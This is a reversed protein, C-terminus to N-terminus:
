SEEYFDAESKKSGKRWSSKKIDWAGMATFGIMVGEFLGQLLGQWWLKDNTVYQVMRTLAGSVVSSVIVIGPIYKKPVDGFFYKRVIWVVVMVGIGIVIPWNRESLAKWFMEMDPFPEEVLNQGFLMLPYTVLMVALITGLQISRVLNKM